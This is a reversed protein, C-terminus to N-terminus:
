KLKGKAEQLLAITKEGYKVLEDSDPQYSGFQGETLTVTNWLEEALAPDEERLTTDVDHFFGHVENFALEGDKIKGAQVLEVMNTMGAITQNFGEDDIGSEGSLCGTTLSFIILLLVLSGFVYLYKSFSKDITLFM